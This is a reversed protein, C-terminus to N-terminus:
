RKHKNNKINRLIRWRWPAGDNEIWGPQKVPMVQLLAEAAKRVDEHEDRRLRCIATKFGIFQSDMMLFSQCTVLRIRWDEHEFHNGVVRAYYHGPWKLRGFIQILTIKDEISTSNQKLKHALRAIYPDVAWMDVKGWNSLATTADWRVKWDEDMTARTLAELLMPSVQQVEPNWAGIYFPVNQLIGEVAERRQELNGNKLATVNKQLEEDATDYEFMSIRESVVEETTV